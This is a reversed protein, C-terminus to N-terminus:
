DPENWLLWLRLITAQGNRLQAIIHTCRSDASRHEQLTVEVQPQKAPRREAVAIALLRIWIRDLQVALQLDDSAVYEAATVEHPVRALQELAKADRSRTALTQAYGTVLQRLVPTPTEWEPAGTLSVGLLQSQLLYLKRLESCAADYPRFASPSRLVDLKLEDLVSRLLEAGLTQRGSDLSGPHIDRGLIEALLQRLQDPRLRAEQLRDALALRLHRWAALSRAVRIVQRHEAETKPALLYTALGEAERPLIDRVSGALGALRELALGAEAPRRIRLALVAREIMGYSDGGGRGPPPEDGATEAESEEPLAPPGKTRLEDFTALCPEGQGLACGLTSWHALALIEPLIRTQPDADPSLDALARGASKALWTWRDAAPSEEAVGLGRRVEAAIEAVSTPRELAGARHLLSEALFEQLETNKTQEFLDVLRVVTSEDPSDITRRILEEHQRWLDPAATLLAVLFDANLRALMAQDLCHSAEFAVAAHLPGIERPQSGAQQILLRFLREALAALCAREIQRAPQPTDISSGVARGLAQALPAARPEKDRADALAAAATRLARFMKPYDSPEQSLKAEPGPVVRLLAAAIREANEQAPELRYCRAIVRSLTRVGEEKAADSFLNELLKDYAAARRAADKAKLERLQPELEPIASRARDVAIALEYDWWADSWEPNPPREVMEQSPPPAARQPSFHQEWLAWLFFAVVLIALSAAAIALNTVRRESRYRRHNAATWEKILADVRAGPLGWKEGDARLRDRTERGVRFSDGLLEELLQRVYREAQEESVVAMGLEGAMERVTSRGLEEGVGFYLRGQSVLKNEVTSTVIRRPLRALAARAHERFPQLRQQQIEDRDSRDEQLLALAQEMQEDSLGKERALACLIVRSKANIGRHQALVPAAQQLFDGWAPDAAQGATREAAREADSALRCQKEDAVERLLHRAFVPSLALARVGHQILQQELEAPVEADRQLALSQRLYDRFTESPEKSPPPPEPAVQGEVRWRRRRWQEADDGAAAVAQEAAPPPPLSEGAAAAARHRPAAPEETRLSASPLSRIAEEAQDETLGLDQAAKALLMRVQPDMGRHRALAAAAEEQFQQVAAQSPARSPPEARRSPPTLVFEPESSCPAGALSEPPPGRKPLPPPKVPSLEIRQIVGRERLEHVTHRFQEHSLDLEEALAVLAGWRQTDLFPNDLVIPAARELFQQIKREDSPELTRPPPKRRAM